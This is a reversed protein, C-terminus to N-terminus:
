LLITDVTETLENVYKSNTMGTGSWGTMEGNPKAICNDVSM